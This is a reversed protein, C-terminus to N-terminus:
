ELSVNEIWREKKFCSSAQRLFRHPIFVGEYLLFKPNPNPYHSWLLHSHSFLNLTTPPLLISTLMLQNTLQSPIFSLSPLPNSDLLFLLWTFHLVEDRGSSLLFVFPIHVTCLFEWTSVHTSSMSSIPIFEHSNPILSRLCRGLTSFSFM